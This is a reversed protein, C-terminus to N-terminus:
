PRGGMVEFVVEANRRAAARLGAVAEEPARESAPDALAAVIRGALDHGDVCGIQGAPAKGLRGLLSDVKPDYSIGLFPVGMTAAFILAHLRVAIVLDLCGMVALWEAPTPAVGLVPAGGLAKALRQCVAVDERLQLPLLVPRAESAGEHALALDLAAALDALVRDIGPWPRLSIGIRRSEDRCGSGALLERGRAEPAPALAFVPDATVEVPPRRVGLAELEARSEPDRVTIRAVGNLVRGTLRRLAPRRLPGIGQALVVVPRRTLQSFQILGLYYLPSHASTVDQLLSGGGSVFLDCGRIAALVAGIQMRPVASVGYDRGTGVPDGSLVTIAVGPDRERLLQVLAALVAEDGANGMGYFGSILFRTRL